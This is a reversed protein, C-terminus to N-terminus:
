AAARVIWRQHRLEFGAQVSDAHAVCSLKPHGSVGFLCDSKGDEGRFLYMLARRIYRSRRSCLPCDHQALNAIPPLLPPLPLVPNLIERLAASAPQNKEKVEEVDKTEEIERVERNRTASRASAEQECSEGVSGPTALKRISLMGTLKSGRSPVSACDSLISPRIKSLRM